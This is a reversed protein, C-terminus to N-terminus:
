KILFDNFEHFCTGLIAHVNARFEDGVQVGATAGLDRCKKQNIPYNGTRGVQAHVTNDLIVAADCWKLIAATSVSKYSHRLNTHVHCSHNDTTCAIIEDLM